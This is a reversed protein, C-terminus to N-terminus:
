TDYFPFSFKLICGFCPFECITNVGSSTGSAFDRLEEGGSLM